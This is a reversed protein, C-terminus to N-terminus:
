EKKIRTEIAAIVKQLSGDHICQLADKKGYWGTPVRTLLAKLLAAARLDGDSQARELLEKVKCTQGALAVDLTVTLAPTMKARLDPRKLLKRAREKAKANYQGSPGYGIDYLDDLGVTGMHKELMAFALDAAVANNSIAADRIMVRVKQEGAVPSVGADATDDLWATVVVMCEENKDTAAYATALARRVDPKTKLDDPLGALKEIGSGYDGRDVSQIGDHVRDDTAPPPTGAWGSGSASASTGTVAGADSTTNKGGGSFAAVGAIALLVVGVVAGGIILPTRNGRVAAVVSDPVKMHGTASPLALVASTPAVGLAGAARMGAISTPGLTPAPGSSALAGPDLKGQAVLSIEISQLSDLLEKPDQVREDAEKALLKKVLADIEPPINAEPCRENMPPVPATVQMGLIKVKSEADFPRTGTLMEYTMVGLAYIDARADVPNGLAQEPAMYEPTGYVMGAQTLVPQAADSKRSTNGAEAIDGVPVKAIGFDLVKVFDPDGDRDVLMVNEPKLDRHVIGLAHARVLAHAIQRTVHLARALPLRGESVLQRLSVGEIFELVLFFSGDDLKGFDTAAAVNPHDIHAAAMAEREFRAVVERMRSMEAHLVKIAVRKRMLTHEAQYVAGMGGEGLLKEIRYRDSIVLGLLSAPGAVDSPDRPSRAQGDQSTPKDNGSTM